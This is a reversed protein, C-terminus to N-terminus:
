HCTVPLTELLLARVTACLKESIAYSKPKQVGFLVVLWQKVKKPYNKLFFQKNKSWKTQAFSKFMFKPREFFNAKLFDPSLHCTVHSVHCIVHSVHCIVIIITKRKKKKKDKQGKRHTKTDISRDACTSINM